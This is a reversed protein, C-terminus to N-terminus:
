RGVGWGLREDNTTRNPTKLPLTIKRFSCFPFSRAYGRRARRIADADADARGDTRRRWGAMKM